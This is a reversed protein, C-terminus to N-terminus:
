ILASVLLDHGAQDFTHSFENTERKRQHAASEQEGTNEPVTLSIPELLSTQTSAPTSSPVNDFIFASNDMFAIDFLQETPMSHMMDQAQIVDVTPQANPTFCDDMLVSGTLVPPQRQRNSKKETYSSDSEPDREALLTKWEEMERLYRQKDQRALELYYEKQEPTVNKWNRSITRGLEAFGIKGHAKKSKVGSRPPLMELLRRREEQFFINYATLCRKPKGSPQSSYYETLFPFIKKRTILIERSILRRLFGYFIYPFGNSTDLERTAHM